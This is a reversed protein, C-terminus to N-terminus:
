AVWPSPPKAAAISPSREHHAECQRCKRNHEARREGAGGTRGIVRQEDADGVVVLRDPQGVQAPRGVIHAQQAVRERLASIEVDGHQGVPHLATGAGGARRDEPRQRIERVPCPLAFEDVDVERAVARPLAVGLAVLAVPEVLHEQGGVGGAGRRAGAGDGVRDAVLFQASGDGGDARGTGVHPEHEVAAVSARAQARAARTDGRAEDIGRRQTDVQRARAAGSCGRRREVAGAARVQRAAVDGEVGRPGVLDGALHFQHGVGRAAVAPVAEERGLEGGAEGLAVRNGIALQELRHHVVHGAGVDGARGAQLRGEPLARHDVRGHEAPALRRAQPLERHRAGLHRGAPQV